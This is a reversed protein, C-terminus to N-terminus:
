RKLLMLWLLLLGAAGAAAFYYNPTPSPSPAPTPRLGGCNYFHFSELQQQTFSPAPTISMMDKYLTCESKAPDFVATTCEKDEVCADVCKQPTLTSTSAPRIHRFHLEASLPTPNWYFCHALRTVGALAPNFCFQKTASVTERNEAGARYWECNRTETNYSLHTCGLVQECANQCLEISGAAAQAIKTGFFATQGVAPCTYRTM